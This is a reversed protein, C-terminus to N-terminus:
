PSGLLVGNVHEIVAMAMVFWLFVEKPFSTKLYIKFVRLKNESFIDWSVALTEM